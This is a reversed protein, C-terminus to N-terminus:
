EIPTVKILYCIVQNLVLESAYFILRLDTDVEDLDQHHMFICIFLLAGVEAKTLM